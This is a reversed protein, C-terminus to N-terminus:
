RVIRADDMAPYNPLGTLYGVVTVVEGTELKKLEEKNIYVHLANTWGLQFNNEEIRIIKDTYKCIKGEYDESKAKNHLIIDQVEKWDCDSAKELMEETSMEKKTDKINNKQVNNNLLFYYSSGIILLGLIIAIVIM